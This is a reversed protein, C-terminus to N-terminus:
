KVKRNKINQCQLGQRVMAEELKLLEELSRRKRRSPTTLGEVHLILNERNKLHVLCTDRITSLVPICPKSPSVQPFSVVQFVWAYIPAYFTHPTM